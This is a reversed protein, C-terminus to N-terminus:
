LIGDTEEEKTSYYGRAYAWKEIEPRYYVRFKGNTKIPKPFTPNRQWVTLTNPHVGYEEAIDNLLMISDRIQQKFSDKVIDKIHDELEQDDM